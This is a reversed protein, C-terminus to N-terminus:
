GRGSGLLSERLGPESTRPSLWVGFFLRGFDADRVEGQASGNYFFRVGRGPRQVGTIRDGERVDPFLRTLEALWREARAPAVEGVRRMEELTREAMKRGALSRSYAIELALPQSWNDGRVPTESSWLRADYVAMGLFRMSGQGQLRAGPLEALVEAPVDSRARALPAAALAAILLLVRRRPNM